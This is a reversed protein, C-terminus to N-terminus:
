DRDATAVGRVPPKPRHAKLAGWLIDNLELDAASEEHTTAILRASDKARYADDQNIEGAIAASPLIADFPEDNHAGASIGMIPDSTADFGNMPPLGLLLEMTRLMSDTNYFRSDHRGREMYPTIVLAISRDCDVHDFGSQADDELICIATTKWFPSHSVAEVLKGVAFDNDAVMARPSWQGAATGSTHDRPLRVLQLAPMNGDHVFSDFERKWEDFRSVSGFSGFTKKQARASKDIRKWLDSDAFNMDFDPFSADTHDQLAKKRGEMQVPTGRTAKMGRVFFGYNRYSVHHKAANDWLYGGPATAVDTLGELDPAFGSNTGEFDYNPWRGSYNNVVNRATFENVMGSTSWNWGDASVEACDYFNDLLTFRRALAHQNPTVDAGFMVLSADGNAEKIDGFVQDYTRNEKIVYIVHTIGPNKLGLPRSSLRDNELVLVSLKSLNAMAGGIDIKSVTGEIINPPYKGWAGAPGTPKGNPHLAEVGKASAVFLSGGHVAVASPYWGTPILGKLQGNTANVVAVANLDGCAVYLVGEGTAVALPTSIPLNRMSAPRLLITRKLSESAVDIESVTDSGGNAVYLSKGDASVTLRSPNAGTIIPAGAVGDKIVVVAGDRECSVFVKGNVCAADLPYGPVPVTFMPNRTKADFFVVDGHHDRDKTARNVVVAVQDHVADYAVGAVPGTRLSEDVAFDGDLKTLRGRRTITYRSVFGGRGRSAYLVPAGSEVGFALGYYVADPARRGGGNFEVKDMVQGSTTDVVTLQERFGSDTIVLYRGDPSSIM